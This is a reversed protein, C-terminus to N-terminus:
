SDNVTFEQPGLQDWFVDAKRGDPLNDWFRGLLEVGTKFGWGPISLYYRDHTPQGRPLCQLMVPTSTYWSDQLLAKGAKCPPLSLSELDRTELKRNM